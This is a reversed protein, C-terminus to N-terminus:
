RQVNCSEAYTGRFDPHGNERGSEMWLEVMDCYHQEVAVAEEYDGQGAIGMGIVILLMLVAYRM